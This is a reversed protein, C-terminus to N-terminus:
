APTEVPVKQLAAHAKDLCGNFTKYLPYMSKGLMMQLAELLNHFHNVCHVIRQANAEAEEQTMSKDVGIYTNLITDSNASIVRNGVSRWEGQTHQVATKPKM